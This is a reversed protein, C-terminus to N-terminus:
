LIKSRPLRGACVPGGAVWSRAWICTFTMPAGGSRTVTASTPSRSGPVAGTTDSPPSSSGCRAHHEIGSLRREHQLQLPKPRDPHQRTDGLVPTYRTSEAARSSLTIVLLRCNLDAIEAVGAGRLWRARPAPARGVAHRPACTPGFETTLSKGLSSRSPGRNLPERSLTRSWSGGPARAEQDPGHVSRASTTVLVFRVPAFHSGM